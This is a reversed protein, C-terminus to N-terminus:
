QYLATASTYGNEPFLVQQASYLIDFLM